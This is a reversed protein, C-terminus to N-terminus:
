SATCAPLSVKREQAPLAGLGKLLATVSGQKGLLSVRLTELAQPSDAAAIDALAQRNIREIDAM